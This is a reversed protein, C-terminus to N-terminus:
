RKSVSGGSGTNITTVVGTGRYNVFGGSHASASLEKMVSIDMGGGSNAKVVCQDAQLDVGHLVSGSTTEAKLNVTTGSITSTSGSSQDVALKTVQVKGSFSAGSSFSLDLTESRVTGDVEVQSGSSAKLADLSKFSVYVKLSKGSTNWHSLDHYDYYIKLV